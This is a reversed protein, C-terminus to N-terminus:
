NTVISEGEGSESDPNERERRKNSNGNESENVGGKQMKQKKTKEDSSAYERSGVMSCMLACRVSSAGLSYLSSHKRSM